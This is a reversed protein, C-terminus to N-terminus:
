RPAQLARAALEHLYCELHTYGEVGLLKKSLTAEGGDARSADLGHAREWEDPMGDGDGDSPPAPQKAPDFDLRLADDAPNRDRPTKDIRGAIVPAMLRRDMPDRPFAGANAIAWARLERAATYRILPFPHRSARAYPPPSGGRPQSPFDDCCYALDYDRRDPYLDVVNDHFYTTTKSPAKPPHVFVLGYGFPEPDAAGRVHAVNGVFNLAYYIPQGDDTGSQTTANVDVFYGPDWYLNNAIEVDMVSGAAAASERSLEPLRGVIRNFLNHHLAIRTLPFGHVPNAYNVLVGGYRAHDGLTEAILSNQITIDSSLTIEIAEDSANGISVHDVIVRRAYRLRLGDDHAGAPRLRLHRIVINDAHEAREICGPDHDCYPEETTHLQRVVIGGPSSQGAITVDGHRIHISGDIVGSVRFLITRAGPQDVAEQLSGPGTASLTTVYIVRGGRGGTAHAGFGEAGPFAVVGGSM